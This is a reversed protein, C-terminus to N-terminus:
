AALAKLVRDRADDGKERIVSYVWYAFETDSAQEKLDVNEGSIVIAHTPKFTANLPVNLSVGKPAKAIELFEFHNELQWKKNFVHMNRAINAEYDIDLAAFTKSGEHYLFAGDVVWNTFGALKSRVCLDDDEFNGLGFVPDFGGIATFCEPSMFFCAGLIQNRPSASSTQAHLYDIAKRM